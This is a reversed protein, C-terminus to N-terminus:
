IIPRRFLQEAFEIRDQQSQRLPDSVRVPSVQPLSINVQPATIPQDQGTLDGINVDPINEDILQATQEQVQRLEGDIFRYGFQAAATRLTEFARTVSGKDTKSAYKLFARSGLMTKAIQLGAITPIAALPAFVIGAAIGAAVLAGPFNGRGIEGKTLVDITDAFHKIDKTFEKGFMAELTEDSYKALATNLNKVKFIDTVNGTKLNYDIADELLKGLSAERVKAFNEEGMIRRLQIINESNKPRFITEVIESPSKNPLESLNRNALLDAEKASAEAQEKLATIFAKGKATTNIGDQGRFVTILDEVDAAKLKPSIKILQNITQRIIPGNGIGDPGRFLSDIKGPHRSEFKLINKAFVTFDISKTVPDISEDFANAFLRQATQTKIRNLNTALDAQNKNILYQDYDDVAKFFDDLQRLSGNFILKDYVEDPDFAGSGRAANTIKKIVANSFPENLTANLKDAQRLLDISENIKAIEDFSITGFIEKGKANELQLIERGKLGLITFISDANDPFRQLFDEGKLKHLDADDLLRSLTYFLEREKSDSSQAIFLNLKRKTELVRTLKGFKQAGEGFVEFRPLSTNLKQFDAKAELVNKINIDGIPDELTKLSKESINFRKEFYNIAQLGRKQYQTIVGDIGKAIANKPQGMNDYKAVDFFADDVKNYMDGVEKNVKGKANGLLKLVQEGYERFGPADMYPAVGIYSDALDEVAEKTIKTAEITDMELKRKTQNITKGIQDATIDDVYANLTAGRTRLSSTMNDFLDTLYPINSKERSSKLVAEAIQQTKGALNVDLGQLSIRYQDDLVKVKGDAVAKTIQADTADKGLTEDLKKIDIVDRGKAAQFALRKTSTPAKAGFYMRYIGGAAAGLGEGAAGLLFEQGALKAVDQADQLQFGQITDAAEETLKGTAGGVGSGLIRQATLNGGSLAKVGKFIKSQPLIGYVSGIVPGAIGMFDALDGREFPSTSDIITNLEITTGDDLKKTQVPQGRDRLGKPTLALQGDTTKVFGSSGVYNRLVSEKEDFREARSLLRRLQLDDVGTDYDFFMDDYVPSLVGKAINAKVIKRADDPNAAEVDEYVGPAIEVEYLPM